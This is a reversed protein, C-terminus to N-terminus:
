TVPWQELLELEDTDFGALRRAATNLPKRVAAPMFQRLLERFTALPELGRQACLYRFWRSGAEVHVVDVEPM